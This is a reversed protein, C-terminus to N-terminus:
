ESVHYSSEWSPCTPPQTCSVASHNIHTDLIKSFNWLGTNTEHITETQIHHWLWVCFQYRHNHICRHSDWTRAICGSPQGLSTPETQPLTPGTVHGSVSIPWTAETGQGHPTFSGRIWCSLPVRLHVPVYSPPPTHSSGCHSLQM